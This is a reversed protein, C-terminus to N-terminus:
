NNEHLILEMYLSYEPWMLFYIKFATVKEMEWLTEARQDTSREYDM